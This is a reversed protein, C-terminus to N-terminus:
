ADVEVVIYASRFQRQTLDIAAKLVEKTHLIVSQRKEVKILIQRLYMNRVKSVLPTSPGLVLRGLKARLENALFSSASRVEEPQNHKVTLQIM